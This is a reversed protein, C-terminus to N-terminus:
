PTIPKQPSEMRKIKFTKGEIRLQSLNKSSKIRSKRKANLVTSASLMRWSNQTM